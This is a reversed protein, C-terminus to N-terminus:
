IILRHGESWSCPFPMPLVCWEGGWDRRSMGVVNRHLPVLFSPFPYTPSCILLHVCYPLDVVAEDARSNVLNIQWKYVYGTDWITDLAM